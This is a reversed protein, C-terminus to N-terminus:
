ARGILRVSTQADTKLDVAPFGPDDLRAKLAGRGLTLRMNAAIRLAFRDGMAVAAAWRGDALRAIGNRGKADIALEAIEAGPESEALLARFQAEDLKLETRFGLLWAVFVMFAVAAASALAIIAEEASM